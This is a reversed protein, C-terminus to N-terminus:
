GDQLEKTSLPDDLKIVIHGDWFALIYNCISLFRGTYCFCKFVSLMSRAMMACSMGNINSLLNQKSCFYFHNTVLTWIKVVIITFFSVQSSGLSPSRISIKSSSFSSYLIFLLNTKSECFNTACIGLKKAFKSFYIECIVIKKQLNM